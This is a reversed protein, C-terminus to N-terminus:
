IIGRRRGACGCGFRSLCRGCGNGKCRGGSYRRAPRDEMAPVECHLYWWGPLFHAIVRVIDKLQVVVRWEARFDFTYFPPGVADDIDKGADPDAVLRVRFQGRGCVRYRELRSIEVSSHAGQGVGPAIGLSSNQQRSGSFISAGYEIVGGNIDRCREWLVLLIKDCLM